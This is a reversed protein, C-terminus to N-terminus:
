NTRYWYNAGDSMWRMGTTTAATAIGSLTNATGAIATVNGGSSNHIIVEYGKGVTNAVPLTINVAQSVAALKTGAVLTAAATYASITNGQVHAIVAWTGPFGAATCVWGQIAGVAPSSNYIITGAQYYVDTATPAATGWHFIPNPNYAM